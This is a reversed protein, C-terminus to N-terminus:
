LSFSYEQPYAKSYCQDMLAYGMVTTTPFHQLLQFGEQEFQVISRLEALNTAYILTVVAFMLVAIFLIAALFKCLNKSAKSSPMIIKFTKNLSPSTFTQSATEKSAKKYCFSNNIRRIGRAILV